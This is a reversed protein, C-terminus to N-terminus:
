VVNEKDMTPALFVSTSAVPRHKENSVRRVSHAAYWSKTSQFGFIVRVVVGTVLLLFVSCM